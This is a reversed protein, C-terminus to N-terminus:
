VPNTPRTLTTESQRRTHNNQNINLNTKISKYQNTQEYCISTYITMTELYITKQRKLKILTTQIQEVPLRLCQPRFILSMVRVRIAQITLRKILKLTKMEM